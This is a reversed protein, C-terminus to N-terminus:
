ATPIQVSVFVDAAGRRAVAVALSRLVFFEIVVKLSGWLCTNELWTHTHPPPVLHDTYRRRGHTMGPM